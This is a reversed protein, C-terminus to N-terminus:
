NPGRSRKPRSADNYALDWSVPNGHGRTILSIAEKTAKEDLLTLNDPNIRGQYAVAPDRDTAISATWPDSSAARRMRESMATWVAPAIDDHIPEDAIDLMSRHVADRDFPKNDLLDQCLTSVVNRWTYYADSSTGYEHVDGDEDFELPPLNAMELMALIGEMHIYDDSVSLKSADDVRVEFIVPETGAKEAQERAYFAATEASPALFIREATFGPITSLNGRFPSETEEQPVLGDAEIIRLLGSHTGHFFRLATPEIDM